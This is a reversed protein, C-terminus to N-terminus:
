VAWPGRWLQLFHQKGKVTCQTVQDITAFTWQPWPLQCPHGSDGSCSLISLPNVAVRFAVIPLFSTSVSSHPLLCLSLHHQLPSHTSTSFLWTFCIKKGVSNRMCATILVYHGHSLALSSSLSHLQVFCLDVQNFCCQLNVLGETCIQESANILM